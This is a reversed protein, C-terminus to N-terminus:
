GFFVDPERFKMIGHCGIEQCRHWTEFNLKFLGVGVYHEYHQTVLKGSAGRNLLNAHHGVMHEYFYGGILAVIVDCVNCVLSRIEGLDITFWKQAEPGQIGVGEYRRM